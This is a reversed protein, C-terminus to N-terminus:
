IWSKERYVRKGEGLLDDLQKLLSMDKVYFCTKGHLTKKLENTLTFEDPDSYIPMFYFGVYSKQKIIGALYVRRKKGFVEVEERGYLHLGEKRVKAKSGIVEPLVDLGESHKEFVEELKSFVLELEM